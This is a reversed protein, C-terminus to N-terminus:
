KLLLLNKYNKTKMIYLFILINYISIILLVISINKSSSINDIFKIIAVIM